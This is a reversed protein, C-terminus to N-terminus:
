RFGNEKTGGFLKGQVYEWTFRNNSVGRYVRGMLYFVKRRMNRRKKLYEKTLEVYEEM